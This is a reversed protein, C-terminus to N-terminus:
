GDEAERRPGPRTGSDHPRGDAIHGSIERSSRLRRQIQSRSLPHAEDWEITNAMLERLAPHVSHLYDPDRTFRWSPRPGSPEDYAQLNIDLARRPTDTTCSGRHVTHHNRYLVDGPGCHVVVEGPLPGIGKVAIQRREPESLPRRHSGPIVRFAHQETLSVDLQVHNSGGTSDFHENEGNDRHWNLEYNVLQPEWLAHANWFRLREGLFLHVFRMLAPNAFMAALDDEYLGPDFVHNVGWTDVRTEDRATYRSEYSGPSSRVKDRVRDAAATMRGVEDQTFVNRVVTYGNERFEEIHQDMHMTRRNSVQDFSQRGPSRRREQPARPTDPCRTGSLFQDPADPRFDFDWTM